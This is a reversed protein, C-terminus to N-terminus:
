RAPGVERNSTKMTEENKRREFRVDTPGINAQAFIIVNGEQNMWSLLMSSPYASNISSSPISFLSKFTGSSSTPWSTVFINVSPSDKRTVTSAAQPSSFITPVLTSVCYVTDSTVLLFQVRELESFTMKTILIWRPLHVQSKTDDQEKPQRDAQKSAQVEFSLSMGPTKIYSYSPCSNITIKQDKLTNTHHEDLTLPEGPNKALASCM